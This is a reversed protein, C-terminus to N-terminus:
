QDKCTPQPPIVKKWGFYNFQFLGGFLRLEARQRSLSLHQMTDNRKCREQWNICHWGTIRKEGGSGWVSMLHFLDMGGAEPPLSGFPEMLMGRSSSPWAIVSSMRHLDSPSTSSCCPVVSLWKLLTIWNCFTHVFSVHSCLSSDM